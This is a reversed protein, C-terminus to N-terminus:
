RILMLCTFTQVSKFNVAWNSLIDMHVWFLNIFLREHNNRNHETQAATCTLGVIYNMESGSFYFVTLLRFGAWRLCKWKWLASLFMHYFGFIQLILLWQSAIHCTWLCTLTKFLTLLDGARYIHMLFSLAAPPFSSPGGNGHFILNDSVKQLHLSFFIFVEVLGSTHNRESRDRCVFGFLFPVSRLDTGHTPSGM